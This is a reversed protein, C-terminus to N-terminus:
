ADACCPEAECLLDPGAWFHRIWKLLVPNSVSALTVRCAVICYYVLSQLAWPLHPFFCINSWFQRVPRVLSITTFPQGIEEDDLHDTPAAPWVVLPKLFICGCCCSLLWFKCITWKWLCVVVTIWCTWVVCCLCVLVSCEPRDLLCLLVFFSLFFFM